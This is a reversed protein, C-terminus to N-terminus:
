LDSSFVIINDNTNCTHKSTNFIEIDELCQDISETTSVSLNCSTGDLSEFSFEAM